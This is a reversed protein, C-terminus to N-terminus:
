ALLLYVKLGGPTGAIGDVDVTILSGESVDPLSVVVDGATAQFSGSGITIPAGLITAGGVNVDITLDGGEPAVAVSAAIGTIRMATPARMSYAATAVVVAGGEGTVELVLPTKTSSVFELANAASNVRVTKLGQGSLTSPTDGLGTFTTISDVQEWGLDGGTKVKLYKGVELAPIDALGELTYTNNPIAVLPTAYEVADGAANVKLIYDGVAGSLDPVDELDGISAVGDAPTYFELATEGENVRLAKLQHGVYSDPADPLTLFTPPVPEDPPPGGFILGNQTGNVLVMGGAVADTFDTPTDTLGVFTTAGVGGGAAFEMGDETVNVVLVQGSRGEYDGSIDAFDLLSWDSEGMTTQNKNVKTVM